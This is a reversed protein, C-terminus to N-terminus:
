QGQRNRTIEQAFVTSLSTGNYWYIVGEITLQAGLLSELQKTNGLVHCVTKQKNAADYVVLKFGTPHSDDSPSRTLAGKFSAKSNGQEINSRLRSAPVNAPGVFKDGSGGLLSGRPRQASATESQAPRTTTTVTPATPSTSLTTKNEAVLTTKAPSATTPIKDRSADPRETKITEPNRVEAIKANTQGKIEVYANTVWVAASPFPAIKFWDGVPNKDRLVIEDGRSLRGVVAHNLSAGSRVQASSATVKGDKVLNSFIWLSVSDPPTVKVWADTIEGQLILTDSSSVQGVVEAESNPAARLNVREGKVALLRPADAARAPTAFAALALACLIPCPKFMREM